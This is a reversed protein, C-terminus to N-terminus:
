RKLAIQTLDNNDAVVQKVIGTGYHAAEGSDILGIELQM